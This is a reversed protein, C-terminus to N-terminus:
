LLITSSKIGTDAHYHKIGHQNKIWGASWTHMAKVINSWSILYFFRIFTTFFTFFTKKQYIHGLIRAPAHCCQIPSPPTGHPFVFQRYSNQRTMRHWNHSLVTRFWRKSCCAACHVACLPAPGNIVLLAHHARAYLQPIVCCKLDYMIEDILGVSSHKKLVRVLL